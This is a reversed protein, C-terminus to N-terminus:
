STETVPEAPPAAVARELLETAGLAPVRFELAPWTPLLRDVALLLALGHDQVWWKRRGLMIRIAEDRGLGGGEPHALWAYGTWQGVGELALFIDDLPAFIAAEGTFWRAHRAKMHSLAEAALRQAEARSPAEAARFLLDREVMYAAVYEPDSAFRTQVADDNLPEPYDWADEIPDIAAAMGLIQQTHAFEHLYIGTLAPEAGHGNEEWFSPAAMVFFPRAGETVNTFTSLAVPLQEADPLTLSGGHALARWPLEVGRLSPGDVPPAGLATRASTTYACTADFFVIEPTEAPGPSTVEALRLISNATLEWAAFWREIWPRATPMSCVAPANASSKPPPTRPASCAFLAPLAVVISLRVPMLSM